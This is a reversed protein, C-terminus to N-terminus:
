LSAYKRRRTSMFGIVACVVSMLAIVALKAAYRGLDDYTSLIHFSDSIIAAPNIRNFWPAAKEIIIKMNGIMLGSLFCCIMIVSLARSQKVDRSSTGFSGVMFGFCVGLIGGMIAALFVLPLRSGFNIGLVFRMYCVLIVMVVSQMLSRAILSALLSISKKTPSCNKRAGIPSMNAQNEVVIHLGTLAGYLATMAILNYFYDAYPDTNGKALKIQECASVDATLKEAVAQIKTPDSAATENIVTMNANYQDCFSKLITENMGLGAVTIRLKGNESFIIGEVDGDELMKEASEKDTYTIKMLPSDAKEIGDLVQRLSTDSEPAIVATPITIFVESNKYVSGFAIKFVTSLAIPFILVWILFEKVRLGAKIEYKLNHLFM